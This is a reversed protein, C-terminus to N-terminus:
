YECPMTFCSLVAIANSNLHVFECRLFNLIAVLFKSPPLGLGVVHHSEFYVVTSNGITPVDVELVFSELAGGLWGTTHYTSHYAM